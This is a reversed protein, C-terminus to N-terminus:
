WSGVWVQCLFMWGFIWPYTPKQVWFVNEEFFADCIATLKKNTQKNKRILDVLSEMTLPTVLSYGQTQVRLGTAQKRLKLLQAAFYLKGQRLKRTHLTSIIVSRDWQMTALTSNIWIFCKSLAQCMTPAWYVNTTMIKIMFAILDCLLDGLLVTALFKPRWSLSYNFLFGTAFLFSKPSGAEWHLQENLM